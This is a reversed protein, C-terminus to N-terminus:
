EETLFRQFTESDYIKIATTRNKEKLLKSRKRVSLTANVVNEINKKIQIACLGMENLADEVKDSYRGCLIISPNKREALFYKVAAKICRLAIESYDCDWLATAIDDEEGVSFLVVTKECDILMSNDKLNVTEALIEGGIFDNIAPLVYLSEAPLGFVDTESKNEVDVFDSELPIGALIKLYTGKAALAIVSAKAAGYKEFLEVCNKGIAARLANTLVSPKEGYTDVIKESTKDSLPNKVTVTEVPEEGVICIDIEEDSLTVAVSCERLVIDPKKESLDCTINLSGKVKKDCALRVGEKIQESTLFRKDLETPSLEACKIRCKGCKGQGGCPFYFGAETMVEKLPASDESLYKKGNIIVSHM